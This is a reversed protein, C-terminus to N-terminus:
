RIVREGVELSKISRVSAIPKLEGEVKLFCRDSGEDSRAPAAVFVENQAGGVLAIFPQGKVVHCNTLAWNSAVAVASGLIGHGKVIADATRGALVLYISPSVTAFIRQPSLEELGFKAPM